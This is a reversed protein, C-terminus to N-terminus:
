VQVEPAAAGDAVAVAAVVPVDISAPALGPSAASLTISGASTGAQVIVRCLGNFAPRTVGDPMNFPKDPSHDNPNGNAVGYISGAGSVSFNLLPSANPVMRGAADVVTVRVLAVDEGDAAIGEGGADISLQLAVPAGVTEVLKTAVVAGSADYARASINGPNYTINPYAAVGAFPVAQKGQSVGNVFLEVSAASSFVVANMLSGAPVPDTWSSPLIGLLSSDNRWWANYYAVTDKPFGALDWSGFHSSISPWNTPSPEGRYDFGTWAFSGVNWPRTADSSWAKTICAHDDQTVFGTTMNTAGYYTRDSVCSASEGLCQAKWPYEYHMSEVQGYGYSYSYFSLSRAFADDYNAWTPLNGTIPRLKDVDFIANKFGEGIAAGNPDDSLCGGENCLSYIIISPHNRDRLAMDQADKTYMPNPIPVPDFAPASRLLAGDPGHIPERSKRPASKGLAIVERQLNRNEEWVLM